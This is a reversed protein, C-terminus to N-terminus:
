KKLSQMYAVLAELDAPALNPYNKMELKRTAKTKQTMGKADVVWAKIEEATLQGNAVPDLGVIGITGAFGLRRLAPVLYDRRAKLEKM